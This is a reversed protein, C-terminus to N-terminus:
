EMREDYTMNELGRITKTVRTQIVV